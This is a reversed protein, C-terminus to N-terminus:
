EEPTPPLMEEFQLTNSLKLEQAFKNLDEQNLKSCTDCFLVSFEVISGCVNQKLERFNENKADNLNFSKKCLPCIMGTYQKHESLCYHGGDRFDM